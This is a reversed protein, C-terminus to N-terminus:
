RRPVFRVGELGEFDSDQTWVTAGQTRATAYVVSDALPLGLEHGIRAATMALPPDLDVVHGQLLFATAELAASEGRLHLMRRFVEYVCISPM